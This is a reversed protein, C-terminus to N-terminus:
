FVELATSSSALEDCVARGVEEEPSTAAVGLVRVFTPWERGLAKAFGARAGDSFARDMPYMGDLDAFRTVCLWSAPKQRGLEQAVHFPTAGEEESDVITDADPPDVVGGRLGIERRIAQARKDTGLVRIRRGQLSGGSPIRREVLIPRRLRFAPPL